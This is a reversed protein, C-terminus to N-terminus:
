FKGKTQISGEIDQMAMQQPMHTNDTGKGKNRNVCKMNNETVEFM